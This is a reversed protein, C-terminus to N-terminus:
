HAGHASNGPAQGGLDIFQLSLFPSDRVEGILMWLRQSEGEGRGRAEGIRSSGAGSEIRRWGLKLSEGVM